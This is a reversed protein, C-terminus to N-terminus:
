ASLASQLTEHLSKEIKRQFFSAALGLTVVIEVMDATLKLQGKVQGSFSCVGDKWSCSLGYEKATNEITPMLRAKLENVDLAHKKRIIIDPM